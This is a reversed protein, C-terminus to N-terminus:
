MCCITFIVRSYWKGMKRGPNESNTCGHLWEERNRGVRPKVTSSWTALSCILCTFQSRTVYLGSCFPLLPFDVDDRQKWYIQKSTSFIINLFVSGNSSIIIHKNLFFCILLYITCEHKSYNGMFGLITKRWDFYENTFTFDCCHSVFM